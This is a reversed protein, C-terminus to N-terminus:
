EAVTDYVHVTPPEILVNPADTRKQWNGVHLKMAAEDRYQEVAFYTNADDRSRCLSYLLTGPEERKVVKSWLRYDAELQAHAGPVVRLTVIATLM